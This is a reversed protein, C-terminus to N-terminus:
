RPNRVRTHLDIWPLEAAIQGLGRFMGLCPGSPHKVRLFRGDGGGHRDLHAGRSDPGAPGGTLTLRIRDITYGATTTYRTM